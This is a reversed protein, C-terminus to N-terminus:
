WLPRKGPIGVRRPWRDDITSTKPILVATAGSAHRELAAGLGLRGLGEAPWRGGAVEPAESVLLEGGIALFPAGCEATVAAPGFARAAVLAMRERLESRRGLEEARGVVVSVQDVGLVGVAHTLSRCRKESAELLFGAADPWVLGLVLGPVGAGSGLDLFSAPRRSALSALGLAHDIHAAVPGPGLAGEAQAAELVAELRHRAAAFLRIM